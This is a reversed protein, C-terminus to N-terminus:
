APQTISPLLLEIQGFQLQYDDPLLWIEILMYQNEGIRELRFAIKAGARIADLTTYQERLSHILADRSVPFSKGNTVIIGNAKDVSEVIGVANFEEPYYHPLRAAVAPLALILLLFLTIVRNM